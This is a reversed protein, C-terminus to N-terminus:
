EALETTNFRMASAMTQRHIFRARAADTGTLVGSHTATAETYYGLAHSHRSTLSRLGPEESLWREMAATVRRSDTGLERAEDLERHYGKRVFGGDRKLLPLEDALAAELHDTLADPLARLAALADALREPLEASSLVDAIERAAKLGALLAGLDRPGGRN